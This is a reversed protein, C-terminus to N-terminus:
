FKAKTKRMEGEKEFPSHFSGKKNKSSTAKQGTYVYSAKPKGKMYERGSGKIYKSNKSNVEGTFYITKEKKKNILEVEFTINVSTDADISDFEFTLVGPEYGQLIHNTSILKGNSFIFNEETKEKSITNRMKVM